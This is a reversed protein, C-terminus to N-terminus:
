PAFRDGKVAIRMADKGCVACDRLRRGATTALPRGPEGGFGQGSGSESRTRARGPACHSRSRDADNTLIDLYRMLPTVGRPTSTRHIPTLDRKCAQAFIRGCLRLVPLM